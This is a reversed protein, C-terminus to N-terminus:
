SVSLRELSHRAARVREMTVTKGLVEMTEFLPPSVTRGTVAVRLSTFLQVPKLGMEAVLGRLQTELAPADWREQNSLLHEARRLGDRTAAEDMQKPILLAPDYTVNPTFFFSTMHPAETLTKMREQELRLVRATYTPDLPRAVTAPLGGEAEPRELFPLARWTLEDPGLHRIYVGNLWLLREEDYRAGSTGVRALSFSRILQDLSLVDAKDDYSWGLLAMYNVIAEPLYGRSRYELLPVAGHRKSLKKGDKGLVDPVHAFRPPQWGLARYVMLHLPASPIWEEARMVHSIRMLHDDIVHALHYTPYGNSKLLVADDLTANEFAIEGRLEDYVTTQGDFPVALRVVFADGSAVRAARETASLARCHRDYRPPEGRSRMRERMEHLREPSCFCPYAHNGAILKDAYDRYLDLRQTQFYPGYAGGVLPGVDWDWDLWRFGEVIADV